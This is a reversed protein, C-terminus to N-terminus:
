APRFLYLMVPTVTVSPSKPVSYPFRLRKLLDTGVNQIMIGVMSKNIKIMPLRKKEDFFYGFNINKM